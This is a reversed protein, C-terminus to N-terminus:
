QSCFLDTRKLIVEFLKKKKLFSANLFSRHLFLKINMINRSNYMTKKKTNIRELMVWKCM